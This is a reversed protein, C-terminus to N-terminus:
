FIFKLIIKLMCELMTINFYFKDLNYDKLYEHPTQRYTVICNALLDRCTNKKSHGNLSGM